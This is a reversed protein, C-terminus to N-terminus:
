LFQTGWVPPAVRTDIHGDTVEPEGEATNSVTEGEEETVEEDSRKSGGHNRSGPYPRIRNIRLEDDM